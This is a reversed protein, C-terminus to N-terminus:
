RSVVKFVWDFLLAQPRRVEFVVPLVSPCILAGFSDIFQLPTQCHARRNGFVFCSSSIPQDIRCPSCASFRQGISTPM